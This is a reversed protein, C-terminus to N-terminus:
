LEEAFSGELRGFITLAVAIFVISTVGVVVVGLLYWPEVPLLPLTVTGAADRIEVENYIARQFTLVIPTVPNLAFLWEPLGHEVLRDSVMRYPYIIPTAWFWLLLLLELLHETDRLRVNLAALLIGLGTAFLVLALLAVLLAPLYPVSVPHRFLVLAMVLVIAQLFFHVVAAGVPALALIERPFAVKKVLSANQVVAGCASSVSTTFLNWVLLGCLLWLAFLPIGTRLVLQFVVYYVGLFMAPSLISWFFGLVSGKYRVKLDRRVMSSFLERYRWLQRLKFGLSTKSSVVRPALRANQRATV